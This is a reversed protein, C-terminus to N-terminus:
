SVNSLIAITVFLPVAILALRVTQDTQIKVYSVVLILNRNYFAFLSLMCLPSVNECVSKLFSAHGFMAQSLMDSIYNGM